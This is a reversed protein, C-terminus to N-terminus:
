IGWIYLLIFFFMHQVEEQPSYHPQLSRLLLSDDCHDKLTFWNMQMVNVETQLRHSRIKLSPSSKLALPNGSQM